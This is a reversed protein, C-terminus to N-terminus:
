RKVVGRVNLALFAEEASRDGEESQLKKEQLIQLKKRPVLGHVNILAFRESLIEM